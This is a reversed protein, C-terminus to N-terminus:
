WHTTVSRFGVCFQVEACHHFALGFKNHIISKSKSRTMWDQGQSQERGGLISFEFLTQPNGVSESRCEQTSVGVLHAAIYLLTSVLFVHKKAKNQNQMKSAFLWEIM